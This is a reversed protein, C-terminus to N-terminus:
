VWFMMKINEANLAKFPLQLNVFAVNDV